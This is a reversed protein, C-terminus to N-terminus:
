AALLRQFRGGNKLPSVLALNMREPQFCERALAPLEGPQVRAIVERVEAMPRVRGYALVQEGIWMMHNETSELSLELQGVVYDRARQFEARSPARGALRRLERLILKLSRELTRTEVGASVVLSGTDDFHTVGSHISYALGHDERVVQFLRSSMNEGLIVNLLRLPYRRRDHRSCARIGLALQTQEVRKTFLRLAPAAQRKVVPPLGPAAGSRFHRALPRVARLVRTHDVPGAVVIVTNAAVYNTGLYGLMQQRGIRDLTRPTGTLPRGLPHGPWMLDNLLEQVHTHPQDLYMALEEKIVTREKAIEGPAFVSELLMDALVDLLVPLHAHHARAYFCTFEEDTFANLQGGLGEVARSIEAANRRRTGKFLMHEIFHSVGNLPAPEYRGGAGVWVGVSVSAMHPLTATVLRLGNSFRTLEYVTSSYGGM